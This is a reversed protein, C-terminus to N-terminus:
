REEFDEEEKMKEYNCDECFRSDVDCDQGCLQCANENM